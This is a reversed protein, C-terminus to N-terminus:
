HEVAIPHAKETRKCRRMPIDSPTSVVELIECRFYIDVWFHVAARVKKLPIM